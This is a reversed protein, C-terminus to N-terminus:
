ATPLDMELENAVDRLLAIALRPDLTPESQSDWGLRGQGEIPTMRWGVTVAGKKRGGVMEPAM